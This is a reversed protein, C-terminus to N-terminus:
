PASRCGSWSCRLVHRLRQADTPTLPERAAHVSSEESPPAPATEAPRRESDAATRCHSGPDVSTPPRQPDPQCLDRIAPPMAWPRRITRAVRHAHRPFVQRYADPDSAPLADAAEIDVAVLSSDPANRRAANQQAVPVARDATAALPFALDAASSRDATAAAAETAPATQAVAVTLAAAAVSDIRDAAATLAAATLAAAPVTQAVTAAGTLAVATAPATQAVAVTLAAEIAAAATADATLKEVASPELSLEDVFLPRVLLVDVIASEAQVLQVTAPHESSPHYAASLFCHTRNVGTVRHAPRELSKKKFSWGKTSRIV